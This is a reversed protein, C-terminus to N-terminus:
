GKGFENFYNLINFGKYYKGLANDIYQIYNTDNENIININIHENENNKEVIVKMININMSQSPKFSPFRQHTYESSNAPTLMSIPSEAGSQSMENENYENYVCEFEGFELIAESFENKKEKMMKKSLFDFNKGVIIKFIRTINEGTKCSCYILPAHMKNAFKRAYKTVEEKFQVEKEAFLDYKTGVLLALFYKNEKRSEKYLRKVSFLTQKQTLDFAFIVFKAQSLVLARSNQLREVLLSLTVTISKLYITKQMYNDLIDYENDFSHNVYKEMLSRTGVGREGLIGIKIIHPDSNHELDNNDAEKKEENHIIPTLPQQEPITVQKPLHINHAVQSNILLDITELKDESYLVKKSECLAKLKKKSLIMLTRKLSYYNLTWDIKNSM